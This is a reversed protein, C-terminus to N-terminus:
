RPSRHSRPVLRSWDRVLLVTQDDNAVIDHPRAPHRSSRASPSKTWRQCGQRADVRPGLAESRRDGRRLGGGPSRRSGSARASRYAPQYDGVFTVFPLARVAVLALPEIRAIYTNINLLEGGPSRRRPMSRPRTDGRPRRDEVPLIGASSSSAARRFCCTRPIAAHAAETNGTAVVAGNLVVIEDAGLAEVRAAIAGFPPMAQPYPWWAQGRQVDPNTTEPARRARDIVGADGAPELTM